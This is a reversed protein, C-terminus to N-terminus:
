CLLIIGDQRCLSLGIGSIGTMLAMSDRERVPISGEQWKQLLLERYDKACKRTQPDSHKALYDQLVLDYGALGHCICASVTQEEMCLAALCSEIDKEIRSDNQFELCERLKLRTLLIGATGHCWANTCYKTEERRRLDKWKGHKECFLSDEYDLLIRIRDAYAANGTWELLKVYALMYGSSGHAMGALARDPGKAPFGYGKKQQKVNKWLREGLCVALEMWSANETTQFLKTLVVIGGALGSLLDLSENKIEVHKLLEAHREAYELFIHKGSIQYLLLYANAISGEGELLGMNNTAATRKGTTVEDTYALLKNVSAEYIKRHFSNENERLAAALFVAIGAVGEYLYLNVPEINWISNKQIRPGSWSVDGTEPLFVANRCVLDAIERIITEKKGKEKKERGPVLTPKNEAKLMALALRIYRKQDELDHAGMRQIKQEMMEWANQEFYELLSEGETTCIERATGKVQFLPIDMQELAQREYADMKSWINGRDLAHLFLSRKERSELFYPYFSSQLFMSYQQTHRFLARSDCSFLPVMKVMFEKGSEQMLDYSFVFGEEIQREYVVPDAEMGRFVPLSSFSQIRVKKYEIRIESSRPNLVMPLRFPTLQQRNGHLANVVAGDEKGGWSAIPLIGTYLVSSAIAEQVKEEATYTNGKKRLGPITELDLLMPHEGCALINEGHIDSANLLYCLFLLVGMRFFYREIEERNQCEEHRVCEEWGYNGRDLIWYKKGTLGAASVFEEYLKQFMTEKKLSRPKYLFQTGNELTLRVVTRGGCHEDSLGTEIKRVAFCSLKLPTELKERDRELAQLVERLNKVTRHIQLLLLREMEPYTQCLNKLYTPNGLFRRQYDAYEEESDAGHLANMDKKQHIDQILVRM